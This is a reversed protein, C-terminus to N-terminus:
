FDKQNGLRRLSLMPLLMWTLISLIILGTGWTKGLFTSLVAGTYGMMASIDLKMIILIRAMDIPNLVIAGITLQDLPYDKFVLLLLLVVGDYLIAFTLWILISISLGKVKDDYRMAVLFAMLSFIVSLTCAMTLLILFISLTETHLVGFFLMPLGVGVLVSACLTIALGGYVSIFINWRSLPQSMLMQIFERSNYYYTTGFLLGILPTLGLTINTMSILVKSNDNSLLWLSITTILYFVTYIYVWRSRVMEYFSYRLIDKM